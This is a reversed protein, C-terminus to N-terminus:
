GGPPINQNRHFLNGPDYKAKVQRLRQWTGGPYAARVRDPGEDGLFGVYVADDGDTLTGLLDKVWAERRPREEQSEYFAAVNIMFSRDRHAFATADAPVRAIAGGLTRIQVVRLPADSTEIADLLTTIKLTDISDTFGNMGIALPQYDEDEPMYIDPYAIEDLMDVVPEGLARFRDMVRHGEAIGGCWLILGMIVTQGVMEEPVGPMPPCSMINGITTLEEPATESEAVFGAVSEPTAQLVILGGVVRDVPSLAFKFRTAVGFNGGGGRLAWFLDPHKDADVMLINGDATVMEVSLLSDITLGHRRSLFGQGGGLTIGGIGVSGTDGFGVALGHEGVAKSLEVATLGTGAWVTRADSDIEIETLDRVDIVVGGDTTSHGAPSHGGSRVALDLDGDRVFELVAAIDAPDAVRVVAGPRSDIGGYFVGRAEDYGDSARDIVSGRVRHRLQDFELTKFTM